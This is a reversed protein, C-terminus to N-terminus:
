QKKSAPGTKSKKKPVEAPVNKLANYDKLMVEANEFVKAVDADSDMMAHIMRGVIKHDINCKHADAYKMLLSTLRDYVADHFRRNIEIANGTFRADPFVSKVCRRVRISLAEKRFRRNKKAFRRVSKMQQKAVERDIKGFNPNM